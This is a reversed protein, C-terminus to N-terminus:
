GRTGLLVRYVLLVAPKFLGRIGSLSVSQLVVAPIVCSVMFVILIVVLPCVRNLLFRFGKFVLDYYHTAKWLAFSLFYWKRALLHHTHRM